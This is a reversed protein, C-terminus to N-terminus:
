KITLKKLYCSLFLLVAKFIVLSFCYFLKLRYNNRFVNGGFHSIKERLYILYGTPLCNQALENKLKEM